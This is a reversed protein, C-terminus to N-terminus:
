RRSSGSMSALDQLDGITVDLYDAADRMGLTGRAVADTLTRSVRVGYQGLRKVPKSQGGGGGSDTDRPRDVVKAQSDVRGYLMRPALGLDTLSIALARASVKLKRAIKAALDFTIVPNQVTVGYQNRVFERLENPPLLFAAAFQECWREQSPNPEEVPNVWGYCASETRTTLHGLEHAMTFIRAQENYASNVAVIPARNDWVSFGRIDDKGLQLSFSLIDLDDFIRRWERLAAGPDRWRAQDALSIGIRSRIAMGAQTALTTRRDFSPLDISGNEDALLWSMVQQLRRAKRLERIAGPSLARMEPGASRRFATPMSAEIPPEAMFFIASPRRVQDVIKAFETKGPRETEDIWAVVDDPEVKLKDALTATTFGAEQMAWALVSGTIPVETKRAM